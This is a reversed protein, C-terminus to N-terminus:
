CISCVKGKQLNRIQKNLEASSAQKSQYRFSEKELNEVKQQLETREKVLAAKELTLSKKEASVSSLEADL